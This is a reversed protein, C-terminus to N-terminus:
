VGRGYIRVAAAVLDVPNKTGLKKRARLEYQRVASLSIGLHLAIEKDLKGEAAGLVVESERESLGEAALLEVFKVADYEM